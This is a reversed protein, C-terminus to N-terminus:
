TIADPATSDDPLPQDLLDRREDPAMPRFVPGDAIGALHAVMLDVARYGLRRLEEPDLALPSAADLPAAREKVM